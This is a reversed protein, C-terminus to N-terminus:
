SWSPPAVSTLRSSSTVTRNPPQPPRSPACQAGPGSGADEARGGSQAWGSGMSAHKSGGTQCLPGGQGRPCECKAEGGPLVRCPAAGHCPNPQCPNKEDACTPGPPLFSTTGPPRAGAVSVCTGGLVAGRRASVSAARHVSATSRAAAWPGARLGASAPAPCAPSPGASAWAWVEPRLGGGAALSWASTTSTWCASAARSGSM